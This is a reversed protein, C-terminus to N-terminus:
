RMLWVAGVKEFWFLVTLNFLAVPILIPLASSYTLTIFVTTLVLSVHKALPMAVPAAAIDLQVQTVATRGLRRRKWKAWQRKLVPTVITSMTVLLMTVSITAGTTEYWHNSFVASKGRLIQRVWSPVNDSVPIATVQVMIATNIFQAIFMKTALHRLQDSISLHREFRTVVGMTFTLAVNIVVVVISAIVGLARSLAYDMGFQGCVSSYETELAFIGAIVGRNEVIQLCFCEFMSHAVYSVNSALPPSVLTSNDRTMCPALSSNVGTLPLGLTERVTDNKPATWTAPGGEKRSTFQISLLGDSCKNTKSYELVADTPFQYSMYALAPLERKCQEESPAASEFAAAGIRVGINAAISLLLIVVMLAYVAVIRRTRQSTTVGVNEWLIDTPEPAQSVTLTHTGKFLLPKPQYLKGLWTDSDAYDDICRAASEQCNFTVFAAEVQLTCSITM